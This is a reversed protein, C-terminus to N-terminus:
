AVAPTNEGDMEGNESTAFIVHEEHHDSYENAQAPQAALLSETAPAAQAPVAAEKEQTMSKMETGALKEKKKKRIVVMWVIVVIIIAVLIAAIIAAAIIGGDGGTNLDIVCTSNGLFNSATCQYHGSEFNTLNGIILMGNEYDMGPPTPSLVGDSLKNWSYSPRPMGTEAYCKLSLRHGTKVAGLLSCHPTSPPALVTLQIQGPSASIDLQNYVTVSYTGTDRPQMNSIVITAVGPTTSPTVRNKFNGAASYNGGEIVFVPKTTQSYHELFNWTIFLDKGIPSSSVYTANLTASQGVTVNINPFPITIQMCVASGSLAAILALTKLVAPSM